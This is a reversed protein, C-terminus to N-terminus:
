DAATITLDGLTVNMDESTVTLNFEDGNDNTGRLTRQNDRPSSATLDFGRSEAEARYYDLMQEASDNTTFLAMSMGMAGMNTRVEAGPYIEFGLALERDTNGAGVVAENVAEMEERLDAESDAGGCAALAACTLVLMSYKM